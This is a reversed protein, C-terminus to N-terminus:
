QMVRFTVNVRPGVTKGKAGSIKPVEHKFEKQFDGRMVLYTMDEMQHDLVIQKNLDRVRFTRTAGFSCSLIPYNQNIGKESDSHSGIYDNGDDYFNLLMSNFPGITQAWMWLGHLLAPHDVATHRVGSFTYDHDFAVVSRPAPGKYFPLNVFEREKPKLSAFSSMRVTGEVFSPLKGVVISSNRSLEINM